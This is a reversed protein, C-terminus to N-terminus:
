EAGNQNKRKWDKRETWSEPQEPGGRSPRLVKGVQRRGVGAHGAHEYQATGWGAEEDFGTRERFTVSFMPEAVILTLWGVRNLVIVRLTPPCDFVRVGGAARLVNVKAVGMVTGPPPETVKESLAMIAINGAISPLSILYAPRVGLLENGIVVLVQGSVPPKNISPTASSPKGFLVRRRTIIMAASPSPRAAADAPQPPPELPGMGTDEVWCTVATAMLAPPAGALTLPRGAFSPVIVAKHHKGILIKRQLISFYIEVLNLWSAHLTSWCSPLGHTARAAADAPQPPPELPTV